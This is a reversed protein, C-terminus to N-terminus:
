CQSAIMSLVHAAYRRFTERDKKLEDTIEFFLERSQYERKFFPEVVVDWQPLYASRKRTYCTSASAQMRHDRDVFAGVSKHLAIDEEPLYYYDRYNAYFYKLEEEYIPVRLEGQSGCGKFYCGCAGFSVERPLPSPLSLTMYLEQRKEGSLDRYAHSQVRRVGVPRHFLDHYSLIPLLSLMGSLDERNHLLLLHESEPSHTKVYSHYIEILEGGSYIDERDIGLFRELTKQRCNPLGLFHKYPSICRYLDTAEFDDFSCPLGFQRCKHLLFPLDFTAGNFHVLHRRSRSQAFSFFAALLDSEEEYDEAFWQILHWDGLVSRATDLYDQYACGILYLRSTSPSFGTTEIDLLLLSDPSSLTEIPYGIAPPDALLTHVTKM